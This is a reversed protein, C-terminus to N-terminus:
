RRASSATGDVAGVQESPRSRPRSTLHAATRSPGTVPPRPRRAAGPQDHVDQEALVVLGRLRGARAQSGLCRVAVRAVAFGVATLAAATGGLVLAGGGTAALLGGGQPSANHAATGAPPPPTSATPGGSSSVDDSTDIVPTVPPTAGTSLTNTYTFRGLGAPASVDGPTLTGFDVAPLNVALSLVDPTKAVRM